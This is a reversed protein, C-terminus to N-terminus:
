KTIGYSKFMSIVKRPDANYDDAQVWPEADAYFQCCAIMGHYASLIPDEPIKLKPTITPPARKKLGARLRDAFGPMMSTGGTLIINNWIAGRNTTDCKEIANAILVHIPDMEMLTSITESFPDHFYDEENEPFAAEFMPPNFLMEGCTAGYIVLDDEEEALDNELSLTSHAYKHKLNTAKQYQEWTDITNYGFQFRQTFLDLASGAAFSRTVSNSVVYGDQVTIIHTNNHGVDVCMGTPSSFSSLTFLAPPKMLLSEASLLEFATETMFSLYNNSSLPQNTMIVRLSESDDQDDPFISSFISAVIFNFRDKNSVEGNHVVFSVKSSAPIERDIPFENDGEPFATPIIFRPEKDTLLGARIASSGIDFLLTPISDDM